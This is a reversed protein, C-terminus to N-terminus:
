TRVPLLIPSSASIIELSSSRLQQILGSQRIPLSLKSIRTVLIATKSKGICFRFLYNSTRLNNINWLVDFKQSTKKDDYIQNTFRFHNIQSLFFFGDLFFGGRLIFTLTMVENISFFFFFVFAHTHSNINFICQRINM